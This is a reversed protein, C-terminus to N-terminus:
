HNELWISKELTELLQRALALKENMQMGNSEEPAGVWIMMARAADLYSLSTAAMEDHLSVASPPFTTRDIEQALNVALQLASQAERSQSFLDGQQDAAITTIQRDLSQFNDIWQRSSRQYTEMQKIEPLLLIPKGSADHPSGFYGVTSFIIALLLLLVGARQIPDLDLTLGDPDNADNNSEYAMKAMAKQM